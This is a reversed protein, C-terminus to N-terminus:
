QEACLVPKSTSCTATSAGYAPTRQNVTNLLGSFTTESWGGCIGSSTAAMMGNTMGSWHDVASPSIAEEQLGDFYGHANTTGIWTVDDDRRYNMNPYLPWDLSQEMGTAGACFGSTCLKRTYFITGMGDYYAGIMVAKYTGSLNKSVADTACAADFPAFGVDGRVQTTSMFLKKYSGPPPLQKTQVCYVPHKAECKVQEEDANYFLPGGWYMSYGLNVYENVVSSKGYTGISNVTGDYANVSWNFCNTSSVSFDENFGTWVFKESATISNDMPTITNPFVTGLLVDGEATDIVTTLDARRYEKGARLIWDGNPNRTPTGVLAKFEGGFGKAIRESECLADFSVEGQGAGSEVGTGNVAKDTVFIIRYNGQTTMAPTPTPSPGGGGGDGIDTSPLEEKEKPTCGVSFSIFHALVTGVFLLRHRIMFPKDSNIVAFKLYPKNLNSVYVYSLNIFNGM